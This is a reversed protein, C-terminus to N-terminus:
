ASPIIKRYAIFMALAVYLLACFVGSESTFYAALPGTKLFVPSIGLFWMNHSAHMLAAPFVSKSRDRLIGLLFSAGTQAITFLIVSLWPIDSTAYTGFIILPWHWVSWTLGTVFYRKNPSLSLLQSHLFGRWGIEEGLSSIFPIFMGITPAFLLGM